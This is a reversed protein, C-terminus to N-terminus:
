VREALLRLVFAPGRHGPGESLILQAYDLHLLKLGQFDAAIQDLTFLMAEDKPGGSTMPLQRPEFGELILKGGPKLADAVKKHFAQRVPPPLHIYILGVADFVGEELEVEALNEIRYDLFEAWEGAALVAHARAVESQDFAQVRWGQKVAYLANRGEGEGPLLLRGPPLIDVHEKLWANPQSGYCAPQERFKQNWFEPNM